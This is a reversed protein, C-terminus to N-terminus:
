RKKRNLDIKLGELLNAISLDHVIKFVEPSSNANHPSFFCNDMRRLPSDEPLPEEEFVDLAAGAIQFTGLAESLAPEDIVPGRATNILIASSKMWELERKGILHLSTPNLDCNLSVFDSEKLLEELPVPQLGTEDLFEGPLDIIDNGLVRMGFAVARKVVAKGIHGVGIVGLTSEKLTVSPVKQWIGRRVTKDKPIISRAFMLIYGLVTDSVPDAFAGATRFVRIGLRGAAEADISDVGTGWKSIVKLRPASNMVSQTFQDDGCIAGDIDTVLHLLADEDLCEAVDDRPLVIEVGQSELSDRYNDLVALLNPASILVKWKM